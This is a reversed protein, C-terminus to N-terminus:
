AATRCLATPADIGGTVLEDLFGEPLAQAPSSALSGALVAVLLLM